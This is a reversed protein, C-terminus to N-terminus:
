AGEELPSCAVCLQRGTQYECHARARKCGDCCRAQTM